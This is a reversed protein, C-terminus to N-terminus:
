DSSTALDSGQPFLQVPGPASLPATNAVWALMFLWSTRMTKWSEARTHFTLTVALATAVNTDTAIIMPNQM